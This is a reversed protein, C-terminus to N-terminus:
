GFRLIKIKRTKLDVVPVKCPEPHHGVKEQFATKSQWCSGCIMTVNRYNSVSAKHIHGTAFFDPIKEIVLPDQQQDPIYLTSAHTPALHRRQLLFKMILDARDYGGQSRISDVNSVYYDFSYGHYLLVDFGSFNKSSHINVYAPNSVVVINKLEWIPQAFDKYLPPQPEAIRVADHNGPCVIIKVYLPIQKLLRACERYQEYIDKLALEEEQGPYVGVGDVLDGAIFLYKVRKAIERQEENGSNLNIWNLFKGFEKSLFNKSGVHLDSLFIAYAEDDSKKFEKNLPVEPLFINNIFIVKNDNVGTVGIVEDLLVNKAMNFLETKNKTAIAKITGTFDELQLIYNNNKTLQKDRIIGIISVNEKDRKNLARSISIPNELEQRNKLIKEIAYLRKNFYNVFDSVERKKSVGEYSLVIKVDETKPEQLLAYEIFKQYAKGKGKEYLALATELEIWNLDLTKAKEVLNILDKFIVVLSDLNIKQEIKNEFAELDFDNNIENLFNAGILLNKKMFHEIFQRRALVSEM